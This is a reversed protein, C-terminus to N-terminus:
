LFEKLLHLKMIWLDVYFDAYVRIESYEQANNGGRKLSEAQPFVSVESVKFHVYCRM